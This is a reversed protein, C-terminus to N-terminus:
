PTVPLRDEAVETDHLLGSQKYVKLQFRTASSLIGDLTSLKEAVFRAVERLDDGEVVALLDYGGSMLYLSRVQHFKSIRAALHDFGGGREPTIRIEILATVGVGGAREPDIVAQYGLITGDKEWAEIKAKVEDEPVAALEALRAPSYRGDKQLLELIPDTSSM